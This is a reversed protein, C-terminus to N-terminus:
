KLNLRKFVEEMPRVRGARIDALGEEYDRDSASIHIKNTIYARAAVNLVSSLTLGEKRAKTMLKKKLTTDMNILVKSTKM